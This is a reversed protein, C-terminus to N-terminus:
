KGLSLEGLDDVVVKAGAEQLEVRDGKRAVGVVLAFAGAVAAEVGAVADEIVASHGPPVRSRRAAELFTDPAPKGPLNLDEALLGDIVVSFLDSLGTAELVLKTNKSSSVLATKLGRRQLQHIFTLTSEYVKVGEAKVQQRFFADKRNGLGYITQREPSDGAEGEPLEIGRSMLFDRVGDSRPKGDVHRPYDSHVDFPEFTVDSVTLFADFTRKWAAAHVSATDTIVGDLDFIFLELSSVDLESHETALSM